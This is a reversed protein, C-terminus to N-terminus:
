ELNDFWSTCILMFYCTLLIFFDNMLEIQNSLTAHLPKATLQYSLIYITSYMYVAIQMFLFDMCFVTVLAVLLRRVCFMTTNWLPDERPSYVRVNQYLTDFKIMFDPDQLM